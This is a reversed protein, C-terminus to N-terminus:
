PRAGLVTNIYQAPDLLQGGAQLSVSMVLGAGLSLGIMLVVAAATPATLAALSGTRDQGRGMEGPPSKKWFAENWIRSMAYLTLTSALLSVAVIVYQSTELGARALALKAFFGSFPPLGALSFAPVLFLWALLPRTRYLGGMLALNNTKTVEYVIGNVFLLAVKVLITHVLFFVAAGIGAATFLGLGMLPYGMQSVIDFSLLRQMNSQILAGLIGTVMTLGALALIVGHMFQADQVFVLTFVRILGYVGAKTLVASFIATVAAPPTHYSDPLWSFLPFVASKIGFAVLFLMGIVTMPQVPSGLRSMRGLDAMNLTGTVGYLMGLAALLLSSAVLTLVIYKVAGKLQSVSGGLAVLVFSAIITVELWVYLDFLDGTLFIGSAGLLLVHLMPYYGSSSQESDIGALSYIATVAGVLSTILLMIASFLDAVLTIGFPAPWAGVQVAVVGHRQVTVMLVLSVVLLAVTGLVGLVRQARISRWALLSVAASALPVLLPFVLLNM